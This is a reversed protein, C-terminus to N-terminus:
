TRCHYMRNLRLVDGDSLQTAGIINLYSHDHPVVTDLGNRSFARRPYHMVSRLDYPTNFNSFWQPDVKEFNSETGPIINNWFIQVFDDREFASHMHAYGLAHIAEHVGTGVAFCGQRSMSLEQRGGVRGIWSWCGDGNIIEVFDNQLTRRVFRICTRQEILRFERQIFDIENQALSFVM